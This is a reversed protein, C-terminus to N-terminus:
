TLHNESVSCHHLLLCNTSAIRPFSLSLRFFHLNKKNSNEIRCYNEQHNWGGGLNQKKKATRQEKQEKNKNKTRQESNRTVL